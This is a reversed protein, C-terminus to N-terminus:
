KLSNAFLRLGFLVSGHALFVGFHFAFNALDDVIITTTASLRVADGLDAHM